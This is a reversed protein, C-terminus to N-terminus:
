WTEWDKFSYHNGDPYDGYGYNYNNSDIKSFFHVASSMSKKVKGFFNRKPFNKNAEHDYTNHFQSTLGDNEESSISYSESARRTRSLDAFDTVEEANTKSQIHDM